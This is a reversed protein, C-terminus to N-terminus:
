VDFYPAVADYIFSYAEEHTYTIPKHKKFVPLEIEIGLFTTTTNQHIYTAPIGEKILLIPDVFCPLKPFVSGKKTNRVLSKMASQLALKNNSFMLRCVAYIIQVRQVDEHNDVLKTSVDLASHLLGLVSKLTAINSCGGYMAEKYNDIVTQENRETLVDYKFLADFQISHFDSNEVNKPLVRIHKMLFEMCQKHKPNNNSKILRLKLYSEELQKFVNNIEIRKFYNILDDPIKFGKLKMYDNMNMQRMENNCGACAPRLNDLAGSGGKEPCIIHSVEWDRSLCDIITIQCCYCKVKRAEDGYCQNFVLRRTNSGISAGASSKIGACKNKHKTYVGGAIPFEEECKECSKRM